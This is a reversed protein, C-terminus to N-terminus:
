YSLDMLKILSVHFQIVLHISPASVYKGSHRNFGKLSFGFYLSYKLQFQFWFFCMTSESWHTTFVCTWIAQFCLPVPPTVTVDRVHATSVRLTHQYFFSAGTGKKCGELIIWNPTQCSKSRRWTGCGQLSSPTALLGFYWSM